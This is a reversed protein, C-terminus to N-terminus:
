ESDTFFLDDLPDIVEDRAIREWLRDCTAAPLDGFSVWIDSGPSRAFYERGICDCEKPLFPNLGYPDLTQRWWFTVEATEPDIKRGVQRRREMFEEIRRLYEAEENPPLKPRQLPYKEAVMEFYEYENQPAEPAAAATKTNNNKTTM